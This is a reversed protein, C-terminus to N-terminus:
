TTKTPCGSVIQVQVVKGAKLEACAAGVLEIESPSKWVWGNVPDAPVVTQDFYVNTHDEDPPPSELVFDCSVYASAIKAFTQELQNYDSVAWYATTGQQPAGGAVAMADLVHAYTDSGPIGVVVVPIGASAIAGVATVAADTDICGQPGTTGGSACCNTGMPLCSGELNPICQDIGCSIAADCNPGGDTALLVVTRGALKLLGPKLAALTAATPTGGSPSVSTSTIFGETTPGTM